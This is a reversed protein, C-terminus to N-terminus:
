IQSNYIKFRIKAMEWITLFLFINSSCHRCTQRLCLNRSSCHRIPEGTTCAIYAILHIRYIFEILETKSLIEVTALRWVNLMNMFVIVMLFVFMVFVTHSCVSCHSTFSIDFEGTLMIIIKFISFVFKSFNSDDKFFMHFILVFILLTYHSSAHSSAVFIFIVFVTHSWVSRHSTFSVDFESSLLKSFRSSSIPFIQITTTRLHLPFSQFIVINFFSGISVLQSDKRSYCPWHTTSWFDRM